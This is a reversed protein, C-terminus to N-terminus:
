KVAHLPTSPKSRVLLQDVAALPLNIDCGSRPALRKHGGPLLDAFQIFLHTFVFLHIQDVGRLEDETKSASFFSRPPLLRRLVAASNMSNAPLTGHKGVKARHFQAFTPPAGM